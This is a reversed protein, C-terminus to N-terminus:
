TSDILFLWDSKCEKWISKSRHSTSRINNRMAITIIPQRYWPYYRKDFLLSKDVTSLPLYERNELKNKRISKQIKCPSHQRIETPLTSIWSAKQLASLRGESQMRNIRLTFSGLKLCEVKGTAKLSTSPSNGAVQRLM